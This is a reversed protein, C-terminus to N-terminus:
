MLPELLLSFLWQYNNHSYTFSYSDWINWIMKVMAINSFKNLSSCLYDTVNHDTVKEKIRDIKVPMCRSTFQYLHYSLKVSQQSKEDFDTWRLLNSVHGYMIEASCWTGHMSNKSPPVLDVAAFVCIDLLVILMHLIDMLGQRTHLYCHNSSMPNKHGLFQCFM